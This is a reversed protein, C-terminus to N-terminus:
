RLHYMWQLQNYNLQNMHIGIPSIRSSRGMRQAMRIKINLLIRGILVLPHLWPKTAIMSLM